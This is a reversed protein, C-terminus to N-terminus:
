RKVQKRMILYATIIGATDLAIDPLANDLHALLMPSAPNLIYITIIEFFEYFVGFLFVFALTMRSPFLKLLLVTLLFSGFFHGFIWFFETGGDGAGYFVELHAMFQIGAMSLGLIFLFATSTLLIIVMDVERFRFQKQKFYYLLVLCYTIFIIGWFLQTYGLDIGWDTIGTNFGDGLFLVFTIYVLVVVIVSVLIRNRNTMITRNFRQYSM